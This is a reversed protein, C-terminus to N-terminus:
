EEARAAAMSQRGRRRLKAAVHLGPGQHRRAPSNIPRPPSLRSLSHFSFVSVYHLSLSHTREHTFLHTAARAPHLSM